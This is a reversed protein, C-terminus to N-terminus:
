LVFKLVDCGQRRVAWRSHWPRKVGRLFLELMFRAGYQAATPVAKAAFVLDRFHTIKEGRLEEILRQQHHASLFADDPNHCIDATVAAHRQRITPPVGLTEHAAIVRPRITM